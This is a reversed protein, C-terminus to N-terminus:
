SLSFMLTESTISRGISVDDTDDDTLADDRKSEEEENFDFPVVETVRAYVM